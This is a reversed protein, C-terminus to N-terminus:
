LISPIERYHSAGGVRVGAYYVLGLDRMRRRQLWGVWGWTSQARLMDSLLRILKLFIRDAQRRTIGWRAGFHYLFDHLDAIAKISPLFWFKDPAATVGNPEFGEVGIWAYINPVCPCIGRLFELDRVRVADLSWGGGGPPASPVRALLRLVDGSM